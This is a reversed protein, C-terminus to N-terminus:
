HHPKETDSEILDFSLGRLQDVAQPLSHQGRRAHRNVLLLARRTM